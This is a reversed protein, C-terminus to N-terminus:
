PVAPLWDPTETNKIFDETVKAALIGIQEGSPTFLRIEVVEFRGPYKDLIKGANDVHGCLQGANSLRSGSVYAGEDRIILRNGEIAVSQEPVSFISKAFALIDQDSAGGIDWASPIDEASIVVGISLLLLFLGLIKMMLRVKM